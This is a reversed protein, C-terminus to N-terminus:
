INRHSSLSVVILTLTQYCQQSTKLLAIWLPIRLNPIEDQNLPTTSSETSPCVVPSKPYGLKVAPLSTSVINQTVSFDLAIHLYVRKVNEECLYDIRNIKLHINTKSNRPVGYRMRDLTDHM